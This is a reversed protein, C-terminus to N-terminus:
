LNKSSLIEKLEAVTQELVEIRNILEQKEQKEKLKSKKKARIQEILNKDPNLYVGSEM